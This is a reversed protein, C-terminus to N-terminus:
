KVGNITLAPRAKAIREAAAKTAATNFVTIGTMGPAKALAEVGKDTVNPSNGTRFYRLKPAKALAELGKDTIQTASNVDLSRLNPAKAMATLFDDDILEGAYIDLTELDPLTALTAMATKDPFFAGNVRLYILKAADKLRAFDEAPLASAANNNSSSLNLNRLAPMRAVAPLVGAGFDMLYLHEISRLGALAGALGEGNGLGNLTLSRLRPFRGCAAVTETTIPDEPPATISLSSLQNLAGALKAFAPAGLNPVTLGTLRSLGAVSDAADAGLRPCKEFGLSQLNDLERLVALGASTIRGAGAISLTRLNAFEALEALGADTITSSRLSISNLNPLCTLSRLGDDGFVQNYPQFGTQSQRVVAPLTALAEMDADTLPNPYSLTNNEAIKWRPYRKLWTENDAAVEPVAAKRAAAEAQEARLAEITARATELEAAADDNARRLRTAAGELEAREAANKQVDAIFGAVTADQKANHAKAEELAGRVGSYQMWGGVAFVGAVVTAGMWPLNSGAM